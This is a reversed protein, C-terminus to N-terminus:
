SIVSASVMRYQTTLMVAREAYREFLSKDLGLDKATQSIVIPRLQKHDGFLAIQEVGRFLVIPIMSEPEMCM